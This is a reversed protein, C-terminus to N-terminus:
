SQTIADWSKKVDILDNRFILGHNFSGQVTKTKFYMMGTKTNKRVFVIYNTYSYEYTGFPIWKTYNSKFM